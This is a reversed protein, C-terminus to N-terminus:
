SLINWISGGEFLIGVPLPVKFGYRFIVYIILTVVVPIVLNSKWKAKLIRMTLFLYAIGSLVFGIYQMALAYLVMFVLICLPVKLKHIGVISIKEKELGKGTVTQIFLVVLLVALVILLLEPYFAAGFGQEVTGKPYDRMLYVAAGIFVTFICIIIYNIKKVMKREGKHLQNLVKSLTRDKVVNEM